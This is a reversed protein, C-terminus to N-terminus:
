CLERASLKSFPQVKRLLGLGKCLLKCFSQWHGAAPLRFPLIPQADGPQGPQEACRM